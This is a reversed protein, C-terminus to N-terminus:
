SDRVIEVPCSLLKMDLGTYVPAFIEELVEGNGKEEWSVLMGHWMFEVLVMCLLAKGVMIYVTIFHSSVKM